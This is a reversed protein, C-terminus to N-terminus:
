DELGDTTGKRASGVILLVELGADVDHQRTETQLHSAHTQEDDQRGLKGPSDILGLLLQVWCM